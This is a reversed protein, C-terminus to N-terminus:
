SRKFLKNIEDISIQIKTPRGHPCTTNNLTLELKKIIDKMQKDTLIDGRKVAARCSLFALMRQTRTDISRITESELDILMDRIVKEINRGRFIIPASRVVFNNGPFHDISFGLDEFHSIYEEMLQTDNLSLNLSLPQPFEFSIKAKKNVEYSNTFEEFIIREHAAHQDVLVVGIKTQLLIYTQHIQLLKNTPKFTIAENRNWPLVSEKIYKGAISTTEGIKGSSEYKFKALNFTLNNEQLVQSVAQKVADFIQKANIFTVQEKRPHVNVDVIEPPIELYLIYVPTSSAPLLTGFAERVSLSIMRDTVHRNNIFLFQKQNQKLASQPKGIFGKLKVMGDEANLSLLNDSLSPGLLVKIRDSLDQRKSLDLIMKNNHTLVFHISPYSLSFYTVIETILRFETKESKLFKRRAPVNLFLNDVTVITGPPTGIPSISEEMGNRVVVETGGPDTYRRTRITLTSIAAISPLAEGRFGLTRIGILEYHDKLKSTTHPLFSLELDDKSMGEGNDQVTIKKLGAGEIHIEIVDAHADIANDILEKVAYAPREIVEGASIKSIIDDPLQIIKTM